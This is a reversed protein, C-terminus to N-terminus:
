DVRRRTSRDEAQEQRIGTVVESVLNRLDAQGQESQYDERSALEEIRRRIEPDPAFSEDMPETTHGIRIHGVGNPVRPPHHIGNPTSGGNMTGSQVNAAQGAVSAGAGGAGRSSADRLYAAILPYDEEADIKEEPTQGEENRCGLDAHMEEVLLQAMEVTECACLPSDGDEDKLNIDVHFENVLKRVLDSHGYSVAAHLLSYGSFDQAGALSPHSLLLEQVSDPRDPVLNLLRDITVEESM